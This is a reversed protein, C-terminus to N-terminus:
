AATDVRPALSARLVQEAREAEARPVLIEVPVYPGWLNLLTAHRLARPHAPIAVRTLSALAADTASLRHVPWVSIADPHRQRFRLERVVDVLVCGLVALSIVDNTVEEHANFWRMLAIAGTFVLARRIGHRLVARETGRNFLWSLLVCLGVLMPLQVLGDAITGPTLYSVWRTLASSPLKAALDLLNETLIVPVIGSAPTLLTPGSKAPRRATSAVAAVVVMATLVIPALAQRDNDVLQWSVALNRGVRPLDLAVILVSFGNGVGHRSIMRALWVLVMSGVIPAVAILLRASAAEPLLSYGLQGRLGDLWRYVFFAQGSAMAFTLADVRRWLRARGSPDGSRLHRWRPVLAAIVEVIV